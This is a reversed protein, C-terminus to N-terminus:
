WRGDMHSTVGVSGRRYRAVGAENPAWTRLGRIADGDAHVREAFASALLSLAPFGDFPADVDFGDIEMEVGATGFTGTMRRLPGAELERVLDSLFAPDVLGELHAFGESATARLARRM